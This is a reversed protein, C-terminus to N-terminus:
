LFKKLFTNELFLVNVKQPPFYINEFMGIQTDKMHM